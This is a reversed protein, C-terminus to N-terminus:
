KDNVYKEMDAVTDKVYHAYRLLDVSTRKTPFQHWVLPDSLRYIMDGGRDLQIFNLYCTVDEPKIKEQLFLLLLYMDIQKHEDVKKQSWRKPNDSTKNEHLILENEMWGDVYGIMYIDDINGTLKYECIGIDKLEEVPSNARGLMDGYKNGAVMAPTAPQRNGLIYNDYWQEKDWEWSSLQSYSLPRYKFRDTFKEM